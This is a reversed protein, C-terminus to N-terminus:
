RRDQFLTVFCMGQWQRQGTYGQDAQFLHTALVRRGSHASHVCRDHHFLLVNQVGPVLLASSCWHVAPVVQDVPGELVLPLAPFLLHGQLAPVLQHVLILHYLLQHQSQSASFHCEASPVLSIGLQLPETLFLGAM